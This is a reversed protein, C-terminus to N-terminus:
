KRPSASTWDVLSKGPWLTDWDGRFRILLRPREHLVELEVGFQQPNHPSDGFQRLKDANEATFFERFEMLRGIFKETGAEIIQIITVAATRQKDTMGCIFSLTNEETDTGELSEAQRILMELDKVPQYDKTTMLRGALKGFTHERFEGGGLGKPGAYDKKHDKSLEESLTLEGSFNLYM